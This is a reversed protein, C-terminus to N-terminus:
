ERYGWMAHLYKFKPDFYEDCLDIWKSKAAPIDHGCKACIIPNGGAKRSDNTYLVIYGDGPVLKHNCLACYFFEGPKGGNWKAKCVEETAIKITNFFTNM